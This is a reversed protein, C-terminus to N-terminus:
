AWGQKRIFQTVFPIETIKGQFAGIAPWLLVLWLFPTICGVFPILALITSLIALAVSLVISQIANFKIFPRNKKDEMLLVIIAIIFFYSLAGWLKDDSTIDSSPEFSMEPAPTQDTM